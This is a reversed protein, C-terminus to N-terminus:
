SFLNWWQKLRAPFLKYLPQLLSLRTCDLVVLITRITFCLSLWFRAKPTRFSRRAILLDERMEEVAPGYVRNRISHGFLYSLLKWMRPFKQGQLIHLVFRLVGLTSLVNAAQFGGLLAWTSPAFFWRKFVSKTDLGLFSEVQAKTRIPFGIEECRRKSLSEGVKMGQYAAAGFLFM